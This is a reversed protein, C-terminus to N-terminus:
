LTIPRGIWPVTLFKRVAPARALSSADVADVIEAAHLAEAGDLPRPVFRDEGLVPLPAGKPGAHGHRGLHLRVPTREPVANLPHIRGLVQRRGVVLVPQRPCRRKQDLGPEDRM